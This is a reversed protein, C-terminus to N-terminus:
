AHARLIVETSATRGSSTDRLTVSLTGRGAKRLNTRAAKGLALVVLRNGARVTFRQTVRRVKGGTGAELRQAKASVSTSLTAKGACGHPCAARLGLRGHKPEFRMDKAASVLPAVLDSLDEGGPLVLPAVLDGLDDGPEVLPAILDSLDPAPSKPAPTAPAKTGGGPTATGGGVPGTKPPAPTPDRTETSRRTLTVTGSWHSECTLTLSYSPCPLTATSSAPFVISDEGVRSAPFTLKVSFDRGLLAVGPDSVPYRCVQTGSFHDVPQLDLTVTGADDTSAGGLGDGAGRDQNLTCSQVTPPESYIHEVYTGDFSSETTHMPAVATQATRQASITLSQASHSTWSANMTRTADMAGPEAETSTYGYTGSFAVDYSASVVQPGAAAGAALPGAALAAGALAGTLLAFPSPRSTHHM